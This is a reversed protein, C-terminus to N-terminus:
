EARKWEGSPSGKRRIADSTALFIFFLALDVAFRVCCRPLWSAFRPTWIPSWLFDMAHILFFTMSHRGFAVMPASVSTCRSVMAQSFSCLALSGLSAVIYSLPFFPTERGILEFHGGHALTRNAFFAILWMAGFVIPAQSTQLFSKRLVGGLLLFPIVALSLDLAFPLWLIHGIGIGLLSLSLMVGGRLRPHNMSAGLIEFLLTSLFLVVLFWGMDISPIRAGDVAVNTGAVFMLVYGWKRLFPLVLFDAGKASFFANLAMAFWIVCAPILLRKAKKKARAIADTPSAPPTSTMGSLIFFLPMHFSYIMERPLGGVNHGVFVLLMGAGKAFDIWRIREKKM